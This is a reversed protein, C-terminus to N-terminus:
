MQLPAKLREVTLSKPTTDPTSASDPTVSPQTTSSDPALCKQSQSRTNFVPGNTNSVSLMNISASPTSPLEVLHSLYDAAKNRAGSIWEFTINYTALELRWRNVKNNANKRNM